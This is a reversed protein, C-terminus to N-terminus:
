FLSNFYISFKPCFYSFPHPPRSHHILHLLRWETYLAAPPLAVLLEYIPWPKLIHDLYELYLYIIWIQWTVLSDTGGNMTLSHNQFDNGKIYPSTQGEINLYWSEPHWYFLAFVKRVSLYQVLSSYLEQYRCLAVAQWKNMYQLYKHGFPSSRLTPGGFM